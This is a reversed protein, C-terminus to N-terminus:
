GLVAAERAHECVIEHVAPYEGLGRLVARTEYGHAALMNKWSDGDDGALDNRAHDGAVIMFPALCVRSVGSEEVLAVADDFTPTGEVTGMFFFRRGLAHMEEQIQAYVANPDVEGAAPKADSSGHGMLLLAEEPAVDAFEDCIVKALAKRDAESYLLPAALRVTRGPAEQLWARAAEEARKMEFGRMLCMTAITLDDIGDASIRAFAEELTDHHEGREARVKAVIKGSTWASYFAYDAFEAALREEVVDITKERTEAISTGFSVSLLGKM